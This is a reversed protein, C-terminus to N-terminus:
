VYTELVCALISNDVNKWLAAETTNSWRTNLIQKPKNKHHHKALAHLSKRNLDLGSSYHLTAMSTLVLASLLQTHISDAIIQNSSDTDIDAKRPNTLLMGVTM